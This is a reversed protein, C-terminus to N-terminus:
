RSAVNLHLSAQRDGQDALAGVRSGHGLTSTGFELAARGYFDADSDDWDFCDRLQEYRALEADAHEGVAIVHARAQDPPM